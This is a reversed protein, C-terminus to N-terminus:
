KSRKAKWDAMQKIEKEQERIVTEALTKIEPHEAKALAERAMVVAGAHHPTMMDLFHKDFEGASSGEMTKMEDASMMKMSDAMGPMEMNVAPPKGPHWRDRWERMQAIERQQDTIIKQAFTKLEPNNSKKLAMQAMEIAGQHHQSMTDIFQLDYAQAAANPSSNMNSMSSMDHNSAMSNHNSGMSNHDMGGGRNDGSGANTHAAHNAANNATNTGTQCAGLAIAAVGFIVTLVTTKM